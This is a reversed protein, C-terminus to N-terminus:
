SRASQFDRLRNRVQEVAADNGLGKYCQIMHELAMVPEANALRHAPLPEMVQEYETIAASYNCQQYYWEGRAARQLYPVNIKAIDNAAADYQGAGIRVRARHYYADDLLSQEGPHEDILKTLAEDAKAFDAKIFYCGAAWLDRQAQRSPDRYWTLRNLEDILALAADADLNGMMLAQVLATKACAKHWNSNQYEKLIRKCTVQCDAWRSAHIQCNAIKVLADGKRDVSVDEDSYIGELVTLADDTRFNQDLAEALLWRAQACVARKDSYDSILRQLTKVAEGYRSPHSDIQAKKLLAYAAMGREHPYDTIVKELAELALQKLGEKAYAIGIDYQASSCRATDAPYNAILKACWDRAESWQRLKSCCRGLQMLVQANLARQGPTNNIEGREKYYEEYLLKATAFDGAKYAEEARGHYDTPEEAGAPVYAGVVVVLLLAASRLLLLARSCKQM